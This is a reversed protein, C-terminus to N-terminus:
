PLGLERKSPLDVGQGQEWLKEANRYKELAQYLNTVNIEEKEKVAIVGLNDLAEYLSDVPDKYGMQRDVFNLATTLVRLPVRLGLDNGLKQIIPDATLAAAGTSDRFQSLVGTGAEMQDKQGPFDKIEAGTFLDRNLALEIPLKLPVTLSSIGRAFRSEILEAFEAPPLNAKLFTITETDGRNVTIPIPLWMNDRAYEPMDEKNIGAIDEVYYNYARTLRGYQKPNKLINQAQFAFNNKMFTYFPIVRKMIDKEFGTFNSYDFLSEFVKDSAVSRAKLRIADSTAGGLKALEKEYAWKYLAFRQLEDANEAINFNATTLQRYLNKQGGQQLTQTFGQLDRVGAMKMSVGDSFYYYLTDYTARNAKSLQNLAEDRKLGTRILGDVEKLINDYSRLSTMSETLYKQQSMLDMGVLYSNTMNGFFNNIHFTPTILNLGKWENVVRDYGKILEPLDRYANEFQKLTDYARHHMAIAKGEGFGKATLFNELVGQAQPSLNKYLGSFDNKFNDMYRYDPGLSAGIKNDIIEFFNRGATDSEKLLLELVRHSQNKKIGVKLLDGLANHVQPDFFDIDMNHYARLGKNIDEATGFYKRQAMLDVGAKLNRNRALPQMGKLYSLGEQSLVHRSYGNTTKMFDPLNEPGLETRFLDIIDDQTRKFQTVLDQNKLFFDQYESSLVKKGIDIQQNGFIALADESKLIRRFTDGDVKDLSLFYNDGQQVWKFADESVGTAKRYADNLNTLVNKAQVKGGYIPMFMDDGTKLFEDAYTQLVHVLNYKTSSIQVQGNVITAGAELLEQIIKPGDPSAKLAEESLAAIRKGEVYLTHRSEGSFRRIAARTEKTYGRFPDFLNAIGNKMDIIKQAVPSYVAKKDALFSLLGVQKSVTETVERQGFTESLIAEWADPRKGVSDLQLQIKFRTQITKAKGTPESVIKPNFTMDDIIDAFRYLGETGDAAVIYMYDYGAERMIDKSVDSIIKQDGASLSSIKFGADQAKLGILQDIRDAVKTGDSLVINSYKTQVLEKQRPTLRSGEAFQVIGNKSKALVSTKGYAGGGYIKKVEISSMRYWDGKGSVDMYVGLDITGPASGGFRAVKYDGGAVGLEKAAKEFKKYTTELTYLEIESASLQKAIDGDQIGSKKFAQIKKNLETLETQNKTITDTLKTNDIFGLSKKAKAIDAKRTLGATATEVQNLKLRKLEDVNSVMKKIVEDQGFRNLKGLGKLIMGPPLYTLPDLVIDTFVNYAFKEVGSMKEIDEATTLGMEELFDVGTIEAQGSLGKWVGTLANEGQHLALLGQKVAQTPRDITEGLDMLMNQNQELNLIRGLPGRDDVEADVAGLRAGLNEYQTQLIQEQTKEASASKRKTRKSIEPFLNSEM